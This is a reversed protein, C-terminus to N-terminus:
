NNLLALCKDIERVMKTLRIRAQKRDEETVSLMATAILNDYKAQLELQHKYAFKLEIKEHELQAELQVNRQKEAEYATKLKQINERLSNLLQVHEDTM